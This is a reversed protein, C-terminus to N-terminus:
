TGPVRRARAVAMGLTTAVAPQWVLFLVRKDILGREGAFFLLGASAGVACTAFVARARRMDRVVTAFGLHVLGAGFAGAALSAALLHADDGLNRQLRIAIHVAGSWGYLSALLALLAGTGSRLAWVAALAMAVAFCAGVPLLSPHLGFVTAIPQLTDLSHEIGILASAIGSVAGLALFVLVISSSSRM